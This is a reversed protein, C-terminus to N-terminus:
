LKEELGSNMMAALAAAAGIAATESRLTRRSMTATYFGAKECVLIEEGSFGGEPGVIINVPTVNGQEKWASFLSRNKESEWLLIKSEGHSTKEFIEEMRIVPHITPALSGRCQKLAQLAIENWRVLHRRTKEIDVKVVSHQTIVPCITQVGFETAKQIMWSMRDGKLLPVILKIPLCDNQQKSVEMIRLDAETKNVQIIKARAVLGSGDILEVLSGPGLRRVRTLHHAEKGTLTLTSKAKSLVDSSILFRTLTM